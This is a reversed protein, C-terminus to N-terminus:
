GRNRPLRRFAAEGKGEIKAAADAEPLPQIQAVLWHNFQGRVCRLLYPRALIEHLARPMAALTVRRPREGSRRVLASPQCSGSGGFAVADNGVDGGALPADAVPRFAIDNGIELGTERGFEIRDASGHDLHLLVHGPEGRLVTRGNSGVQLSYRGQWVAIRRALRG